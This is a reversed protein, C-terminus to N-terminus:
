SFMSVLHFEFITLSTEDLQSAIENAFRNAYRIGHQADIVIQETENLHWYITNLSILFDISKTVSRPM